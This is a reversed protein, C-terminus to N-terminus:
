AQYVTTIASTWEADEKRQKTRPGVYPGSLQDIVSSSNRMAPIWDFVASSWGSLEHWGNEKIFPTTNTQSMNITVKFASKDFQNMRSYNFSNIDGDTCVLITDPKFWLSDREGAAAMFNTSGAINGSRHKSLAAAIELVSLKKIDIANVALTKASSGFVTIGINNASSANAKLMSAALMLSTTYASTNSREDGMSGSYDLILWINQGIEPINLTSADIADSIATMMSAKSASANLAGYAQMFQFPLQKSEAVRKPDAIVDLCKTRLTGADVGAQDINRLNRLMAQYGLQDSKLLETWIAKDSLRQGAPLQGNASLRTEWTYPVELTGGMIKAFIESQNTNKAVPHVIRLVDRFKVDTSRNYKAFHYEGFKNMADAVGRKIAMPVQKKSGFVELAYAYLDTIQDARQIVDCVLQRLNAYNLQDITQGLYSKRVTEAHSYAMKGGRNVITNLEARLPARKNALAKAFEVVLVIPMTRIHMDTRAHIALNAIFDYAGEDVLQTVAARLERLQATPSKSTGLTTGFLSTTAIEYLKQASQKKFQVNGNASVGLDYGHRAATAAVTAPQKRTNTNLKSM